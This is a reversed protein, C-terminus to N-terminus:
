PLAAAGMTARVADAAHRARESLPCDADGSTPSEVTVPVTPPLLSLLEALPLAGDGPYKRGHLAEDRLLDFPPPTASADCLQVLHIREPPFRRIEDADGGSRHWHLVDLVVGANPQGVESILEAAETLSRTATYPMFELAVLMGVEQGYACLEGFRAVARDRASEQNIVIIRDSGLERGVDMVLRAEGLSYQEDLKVVGVDVVTMGTRRLEAAVARRYSADECLRTLGGDPLRPTLGVRRFGGERAAALYEFAEPRGLTLPAMAVAHPDAPTVVSGASQQSEPM